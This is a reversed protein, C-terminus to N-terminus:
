NLGRRQKKFINITGTSIDSIGIRNMETEFEERTRFEKVTSNHIIIFKNMVEDAIVRTEPYDESFPMIKFMSGHKSAIKDEYILYSRFWDAMRKLVPKIDGESYQIIPALIYITLLGDDHMHGITEIVPYSLKQYQEPSDKELVVALFEPPQTHLIFENYHEDSLMPNECIMFKPLLNM